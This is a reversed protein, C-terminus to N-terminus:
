CVWALQGESAFHSIPRDTHFQGFSVNYWIVSTLSLHSPVRSARTHWKFVNVKNRHLLFVSAEHSARSWVFGESLLFFGAKLGQFSSFPCVWGWNYPVCYKETLIASVPWKTLEFIVWPYLECTLAIKGHEFFSFYLHAHASFPITIVIREHLTEKSCHFLLTNFTLGILCSCFCSIGHKFINFYKVISLPSM